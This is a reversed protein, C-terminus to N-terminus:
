KAAKKKPPAAAARAAAAAEEAEKAKREEEEKQRQAEAAAAADRQAQKKKNVQVSKHVVPVYTSEEEESEEEESEDDDDFAFSSFTIKQTPAPRRDGDDDDDSDDFKNNKKKNKGTPAPPDPLKMDFMTTKEKKTPQPKREKTKLKNLSDVKKDLKAMMSEDDDDDDDLLTSELERCRIDEENEVDYQKQKNPDAKHLSAKAKVLVNDVQFEIPKYAYNKAGELDHFIQMTGKADVAWFEEAVQSLFYRDHSIIIVGGKFAKLAEILSEITEIDLHNTPEDMIVLHPQSFTLIAFAVRSKQGGSLKEIKQEALIKDFGFRGLYGRLMGENHQPFKHQLFELATMSNDLQDLHHQTFIKARAQDNLRVEGESQRLKGLLVNILTTKGAGNAGLVGIRSELDIFADINNLLYPKNVGDVTPDYHFSMGKCTVIAHDLSGPDPFTFHIAKDEKIEQLQPLADLIRQRSKAMEALNPDDKAKQRAEMIFKHLAARQKETKEWLKNMRRITESRVKVYNTYDGRYYALTQDRFDICDTMIADLFGRDHSVVLLTAEYGKLFTSLWEVAPFDLHNTPEDLLLIDPTVFLACALRVRMKWGGSLKSIPNEQMEQTFQLGTLIARARAEATRAGIADLRRYVEDLQSEYEQFADMNLDDGDDGGQENQEMLDLLRKEESELFNKVVDSQIVYQIVPVHIEGRPIEEQHVHVVRLYQPFGELKYQSIANLLTTKGIGNQGILGYHRGYVLRLTANNVLVRSNNPTTLTFDLIM